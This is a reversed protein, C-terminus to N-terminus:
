AVGLLEALTRLEGLRAPGADEITLAEVEAPLGELRTRLARADAGALHWRLLLRGQADAWVGPDQARWGRVGAPVATGPAPLVGGLRPGLAELRAAGQAGADAPWELYFRFWAPAEEAWEALTAPALAAWDAARLLLCGAENAYFAFRWDAPLDQPFDDAIWPAEVWGSVGLLLRGDDTDDTQTM